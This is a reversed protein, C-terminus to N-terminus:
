RDGWGFNAGCLQQLGRLVLTPIEDIHVKLFNCGRNAELLDVGQLDAGQLIANKLNTNTFKAYRLTASRLCVGELKADTM